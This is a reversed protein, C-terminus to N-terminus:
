IMEQVFLNKVIIDQWVKRNIGDEGKHQVTEYYEGFIRGFKSITEPQIEKHICYERYKKYVAPKSEYKGEKDEVLDDIFLM